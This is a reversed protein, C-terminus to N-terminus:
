FPLEGDSDSLESFSNGSESATAKGSAATAVNLWECVLTKYTKGNYEREEVTGIACVADGKRALASCMTLSRWARIDVYITSGDERKGAAISFNCVPTSKEGVYKLQADKTVTGTVLIYGNKLILQM